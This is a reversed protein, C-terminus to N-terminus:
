REIWSKRLKNFNPATINKSREEDVGVKVWNIGEDASALWTSDSYIIITSDGTSIQGIVNCCANKNKYNVAEVRIENMGKKLYKKVDILKVRQQEIWLSGSRKVYVEDIFNDNIFLKAHGDTFFQVYSKQVDSKIEIDKKFLAKSIVTDSETPIFVCKSKIEASELKSDELDIKIEEFYEILRSFKDEVMWLNADKNNRLWLESFVEKLMKLNEINMEINNNLEIEDVTGGNLKRILQNQTKIKLAYYDKLKKSFLLLDIHERNKTISKNLDEYSTNLESYNMWFLKSPYPFKHARWDQQRYGLLPHRWLDNWLVQNTPNSLEKFLKDIKIDNTGYFNKFFINQFHDVESKDISWSCQASWAYGYLNLERFTESGYDGWCSNIMGISNNEIGSRTLTEINPIALFSEPFSANFNWVTPSVIYNFGAESFTQTSPYEFRPFYHWDVIIIDKPIRELIEPHSLIIDGYMMVKKDNKKCINYIKQYHDAHVETLSTQEVISRSNGYGVDYSEDAGIHIYESPFLEFVEKLMTELFKYTGPNTVDLSAAGPFDAYKIFEPQSLINEFHGLTQFVPIVEVFHDDAYEVIEKIEDKSLAGRSVGIEPYSDFQILDEMYPMYTNMKYESIFKIIRKFNEITSVQGRSIDDSIGRIKMDPFDIIKVLPIESNGYNNLIQNISQAAYFLGKINVAEAIIQNSSIELTYAEDVFENPISGTSNFQDILNFNILTQKDSAFVFDIKDGLLSVFIEKIAKHKNLEKHNFSVAIDEPLIFSNNDDIIKVFQPSPLIEIKMHQGTLSLSIFTIVLFLFKKM